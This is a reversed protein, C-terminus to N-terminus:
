ALVPAEEDQAAAHVAASAHGASARQLAQMICQLSLMLDTRTLVGVLKGDAVVPLSSIHKTILTTIAPSVLTDPTVTMPEPTMIDQATRGTKNLDRDSIVGVLREAEDVVLLHRLRLKQMQECVGAITEEPQVTSVFGSMLDGVQLGVAYDAGTDEALLKLIRNRKAFLLDQRTIANREEERALAVAQRRNLHILILVLACLGIQVLSLIVIM